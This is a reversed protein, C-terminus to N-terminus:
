WPIEDEQEEEQGETVVQLESLVARGEWNGIAAELGVYSRTHRIPCVKDHNGSPTFVMGTYPLQGERPVTGVAEQITMECKCFPCASLAIDYRYIEAQAGEILRRTVVAQM